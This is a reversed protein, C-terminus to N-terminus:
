ASAEKKAVRAARAKATAEARNIFAAEHKEVTAQVFEDMRGRVESESKGFFLIPYTDYPWFRGLYEEADIQKFIRQQANRIPHRDTMATM